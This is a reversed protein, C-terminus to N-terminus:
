SKWLGAAQPEATPNDILSRLAAPGSANEAGSPSTTAAIHSNSWSPYMRRRPALMLSTGMSSDLRRM